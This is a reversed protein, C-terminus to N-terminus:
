TNRKFNGVPISKSTMEKLIRKEKKLTDIVENKWMFIMESPNSVADVAKMNKDDVDKVVYFIWGDM